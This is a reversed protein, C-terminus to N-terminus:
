QNLLMPFAFLYVSSFALLWLSILTVDIRIDQVTRIDKRIYAMWIYIFILFIHCFTTVLQNYALLYLLLIGGWLLSFVLDNKNERSPAQNKIECKMNFDRKHSNTNWEMCPPLCESLISCQQRRVLTTM